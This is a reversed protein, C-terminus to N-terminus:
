PVYANFIFPMDYEISIHRLFTFQYAYKKGKQRGYLKFVAIIIWFCETTVESNVDIVGEGMGQVKGFVLKILPHDDIFSFTM